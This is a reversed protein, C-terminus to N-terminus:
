GWRPTTEGCWVGRRWRTYHVRVPTYPVLTFLDVLLVAKALFRPFSPHALSCHALVVYRTEGDSDGRSAFMFKFCGHQMSLMISLYRFKFGRQPKCHSADTHFTYFRATQLLVQLCPQVLTRFKLGEDDMALFALLASCAKLAAVQVKPSTILTVLSVTNSVTEPTQASSKWWRTHQAVEVGSVHVLFYRLSDSLLTPTNLWITSFRGPPM